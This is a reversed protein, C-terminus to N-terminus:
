PEAGTYLMLGISELSGTKRDHSYLNPINLNLSDSSIRQISRSKDVDDWGLKRSKNNSVDCFHIFNESYGIM